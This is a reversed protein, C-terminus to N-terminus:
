GPDCFIHTPHSSKIKYNKNGWLFSNIVIKNKDVFPTEDLAELMNKKISRVPFLMQFIFVTTPCWFNEPFTIKVFYFFNPRALKQPVPPSLRDILNLQGYL